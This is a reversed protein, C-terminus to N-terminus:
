WFSVPRSFRCNKADSYPTGVASGICSSSATPRASSARVLTPRYEFPMCIRNVKAREISFLGSNSNRSSGVDPSSGTLARLTRSMTSPRLAWPRVTKRVVCLMAVALSSHSRTANTTSPRMTAISVGASSLIARLLRDTRTSNRPASPANSDGLESEVAEGVVGRKMRHQALPM